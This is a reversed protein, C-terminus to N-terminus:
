GEVSNRIAEAARLFDLEEDLLASLPLPCTEPAVLEHQDFFGAVQKRARRYITPLDQQLHQRMGPTYASIADAQFAAMEDRWHGFAAHDAAFAAKLLHALLNRLQSTVVRYESAGAGEIEVAVHERDIANPRSARIRAAQEKTWVYFDTGYATAADSPM